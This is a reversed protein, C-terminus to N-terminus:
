ADRAATSWAPVRPDALAQRLRALHAAAADAFAPTATPLTMAALYWAADRLLAVLRYLKLRAFAAPRVTGAYAALLAADAADEPAHYIAFTALDFYPDGMAAYEWDVIWVQTGDDVLNAGWLDNHCPVLRASADLVDALPTLRARMAPLDAPVLVGHQRATDLYADVTRLPTYVGPVPPGQHYRRVAEAVRRVVPAPAPEGPVLPRGAVFRTVMLGVDPLVCVVEPAIGLRAAAAACAQERAREVGLVAAEPAWLRAVFAEDDADVRFTRNTLGGSLPAIRVTRASAWAPVRAVARAVEAAM